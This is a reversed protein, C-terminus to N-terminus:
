NRAAGWWKQKNGIGFSVVNTVVFKENCSQMDKLSWRSQMNSSPLSLRLLLGRTCAACWPSSTFYIECCEQDRFQILLVPCNWTGVLETKASLTDAGSLITLTFIKSLLEPQPPSSPFWFATLNRRKYSRLLWAHLWFTATKMTVNRLRFHCLHLLQYFVM